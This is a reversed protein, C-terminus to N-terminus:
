GGRKNYDGREDWMKNEGKMAGEWETENGGTEQECKIKKEVEVAKECEEMGRQRRERYRPKSEFTEEKM